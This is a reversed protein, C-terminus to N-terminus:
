WTVIFMDYKGTRFRKNEKRELSTSWYVGKLTEGCTLTDHSKFLLHKEIMDFM